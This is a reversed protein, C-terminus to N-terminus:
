GMNRETTVGAVPEKLIIEKKNRGTSVGAMSCIM